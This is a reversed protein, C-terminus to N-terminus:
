TKKRRRGAQRGGPKECPRPSALVMRGSKGAQDRGRARSEPSAPRAGTKKRSDGTHGAGATAGSGRRNGNPPRFGRNTPEPTM